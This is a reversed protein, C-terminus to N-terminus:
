DLDSKASKSSKGKQFGASNAAEAASARLAEQYVAEELDVAEQENPEHKGGGNMQAGLRSKIDKIGDETSGGLMMFVEGIILLAKKRKTRTAEDVSHDHTVKRCVANLTARLDIETIHWMVTFMHGSLEEMKAQLAKEEAESDSMKPEKLKAETDESHKSDDVTTDGEKKKKSGKSVQSSLSAARLGSSAIYYRTAIGRGTQRFGVGIGDFIDLEQRASESYQLGITYLLTSGFASSSLEVAEAHLSERFMEENGGSDVYPQLKAALNVACQIERRRQKYHKLKHHQLAPDDGGEQMQSALQLEGVLPEFKESGFIMAFLAGPDMKPAGEVGEKGGNDYNLRLKEDSLVQYAEGVKQFKTNADPDDRHRDPHSEKAKKYYAKKIESTTANTPIGLVRYYEDDLVKRSPGPPTAAKPIEETGADGVMPKGGKKNLSHLYEEPTMNLMIDAEQKLDYIIWEKREGDWEKGQSVAAMAGPTHYFGRGIQVAGTVAGGVAMATGGMIGLGLGLGFGKMGGWPGGSQSGDIAGKIPASVMIAAGGLVGKLINGTGKGFGDLADKPKSTSFIKNKSGAERDYEDQLEKAERMAKAEADEPNELQGPLGPQVPQFPNETPEKPASM